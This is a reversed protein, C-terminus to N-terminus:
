YDMNQEEETDEEEKESKAYENREAIKIEEGKEEKKDDKKKPGGKEPVIAWAILYVIVGPFIGTFVVVFAWVLRLLTSDINFYEGLGGVVGAVMRDAESRYLKKNLNNM